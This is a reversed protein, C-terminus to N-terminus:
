MFMSENHLNGEAQSEKFQFTYFFNKFCFALLLHRDLFVSRSIHFNLSKEEFQKQKLSQLFYKYGLVLYNADTIVMKCLIHMLKLENSSM